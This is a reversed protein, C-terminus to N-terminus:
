IPFEQFAKRIVGDVLEECVAAIPDNTAACELSVAIIEFAWYMPTSPTRNGRWDRAQEAVVGFAKEDFATRKMEEWTDADTQSLVHGAAFSLGKHFHSLQAPDTKFSELFEAIRQHKTQLDDEPKPDANESLALAEARLDFQQGFTLWDRESDSAPTELFSELESYGCWKEDNGQGLAICDEGYVLWLRSLNGKDEPITRMEEVSDRIRRRAYEQAEAASPFGTILTVSDDDMYNFMDVAVVAGGDNSGYARRHDAALISLYDEYFKHAEFKAEV